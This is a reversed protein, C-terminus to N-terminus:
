GELAQSSCSSFGMHSSGMEVALHVVAVLFGHAAVFLLGLEPAVVLSLGRAALFVWWLGQGWFLVRLLIRPIGETRGPGLAESIATFISQHTFTFVDNGM